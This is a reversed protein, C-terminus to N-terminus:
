LVRGLLLPRKTAYPWPWVAKKEPTKARGIRKTGPTSIVPISGTVEAKCPRREGLQAIDGFVERPLVTEYADFFVPGKRKREGAIFIGPPGLHLQVVSRM